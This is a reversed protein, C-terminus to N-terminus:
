AFRSEGRVISYLVADDYRGHILLRSRLIGELQAGSREAVKRSAHNGVSILIELRVLDTERFAWEALAQVTSTAAGRRTASTRIWYGLNCRRNVPDLQNLGGCGLVRGEVSEVVFEFTTKNQFAEIVSKSWFEAEPLSYAPHCWPLWPSLEALSERVAEFVPQMHRAECPVLRIQM